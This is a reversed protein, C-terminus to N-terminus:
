FYAQLDADQPPPPPNIIKNKNNKNNNNNYCYHLGASGRGATPAPPNLPHTIIITIIIIIIIFYLLHAQRALELRILDDFLQFPVIAMSFDYRVFLWIFHGSISIGLVVFHSSLHIFPYISLHIFPCIFLHIFSYIHTSLHIFAGGQHALELLM